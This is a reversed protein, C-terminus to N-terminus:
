IVSVRLIISHAAETRSFCVMFLFDLDSAQVMSIGRSWCYAWKLFSDMQLLTMSRLATFDMQIHRGWIM